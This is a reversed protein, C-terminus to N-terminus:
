ERRQERQMMIQAGFHSPNMALAQSFMETAAAHDGKGYYGLGKAYYADAEREHRARRQALSPNVRGQHGATERTYQDRTEPKLKADGADILKAFYEDAKAPQGLEAWALGKYYDIEPFNGAGWGHRYTYATMKTFYQKAGSKDGRLKSNLGLYYYGVGAKADRESELNPPFQMAALFDKEAEAYKKKEMNRIGRQLHADFWYVHINFTAGEETRFHTNTLVDIAADYDGLLNHLRVLITRVNVDEEAHGIHKQMFTSIEVPATRAYLMYNDAEAVYDPEQPDLAIAKMMNSIAGDIDDTYNAQAFALNRYFIAHQDDLRIAKEWEAIAKTAQYDAYVNGLYYHANADGPNLAVAALLAKESQQGYPFCYDTPQSAGTTFMKMAAERDGNLYDYYGAHYFIMPHHSLRTDSSAAAAKLLGIADGYFGAQGYRAATELYNDAEGRLQRGLLAFWEKAPKGTEINGALLYLENLSNFNLPDLSRALRVAELSEEYKGLRRLIMAKLNLAEINTPDALVAKRVNEEARNWDGRLGEIRALLTLAPSIWEYGWAARYLTERAEDYKEQQLLSVGLYYLPETYKPKTHNGTVQQLATRLHQEAKEPIGKRLYSLGVQTNVLIDEPDRRLAEAFYKDPDYNANGFQELRLGTLWLEQNTEYDAPEDPTKYPEPHPQNKRPSPKWSILPKDGSFLAIELDDYRIDADLSVEKSYPKTPDIEITEKLLADGRNSLVVTVNKHVGTANVQVLARQNNKELNIAFDADAEKISNMHKIGYYYMTGQKATLPHIFSYDPQNDSYAGMMLELYPGDSDTLKKDWRKGVENPGWNWFKKGSFTFRDGVLVTGAEKGHDIGGLFNQKTDWAFFSTPSATNKWWSVDQGKTFDIGQYVQNAIPWNTFQTKAHYVAKEVDPPFIVQYNENAHVATNAWFLFSHQVPTVNFYRFETKIYAKHPELTLGVLWRTRNRKEYEGVWVTKSGDANEVLTYDVPLFSTPRHHHPINWEAGGSTWAGAMGILAPKVVRNHYVIDYNDTKDLAYYLRGGMGPTVCIKIYENELFVAQYDEDAKENTLSGRFPYPYIHRQAGQYEAPIYFFPNKDAPGTRYTPLVIKDTWMKVGSRDQAPAQVAVISSLLFVFVAQSVRM